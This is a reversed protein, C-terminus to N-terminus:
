AKWAVLNDYVETTILRENRVIERYTGHFAAEFSEGAGCDVDMTYRWAGGM